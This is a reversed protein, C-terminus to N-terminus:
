AQCHYITFGQEKATVTCRKFSQELIPQYRLFSNAVITLEGHNVLHQKAQSLFNETASYHTKIGSHFPPNSIVHQYKKTVKALGDSALYQGDLGNIAMTQQASSIALASVDLLEISTKPYKKAIVASIVGAGCGFDLCNGQMTPLNELLVKTGKDLGKQSFVGPLAAITLEVDAITLPYESFWDALQFPALDTKINASFLSCHRASDIKTCDSLYDKAFKAVTKIGGKNEGVILIRTNKDINNALMALNFILEAKSKPFAIVVLDHKIENQYHSSFQCTFDNFSKTLQEMTHHAIINNSFCTMQSDPYTDVLEIFLEDAPLNIFLPNQSAVLDTNRLILQSINSLAM